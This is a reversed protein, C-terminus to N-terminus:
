RRPAGPDRHRRRHHADDDVADGLTVAPVRCPRLRGRATPLAVENAKAAGRALLADLEAPDDLYGRVRAAFPVTVDLVAAAVEKKLDGYGQGAM